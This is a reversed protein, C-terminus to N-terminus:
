AWTVSIPSRVKYKEDDSVWSLSGEAYVTVSPQPALVGDFTVTYSKKESVATFSLQNPNVSVKMGKPEVVQATYNATADGVNTVTRQFTVSFNQTNNFVVPFSPYNLNGALSSNCVVKRNTIMLIQSSNYNLSCLYAVYDDATIDYVLGPHAAREPNVHGSGTAFLDAFSGNSSDVIPQGTRDLVDASTMIASKIAAPSWDPHVSKLLGALGSVHPTAMSTGSEFNFDVKREDTSVGSPNLNSPWAALINVGPALIDPKLIEPSALSPGRSSFSAVAPANRTGFMTGKFSLTVTPNVTSNMYAKMTEGEKFGVRASPLVDAPVLTEQAHFPGQAVIMGLVGANLLLEEGQPGNTVAGQDCLLIKGEALAPDPINCLPDLPNYMFPATIQVTTNAPYISEAHFLTGNGLNVDVIVDRDITSAGVTTIWPAESSMTAPYPGWNGAACSVFIGKDMARFAGIAILDQDFPHSLGALSLSLIDVGDAIADDMAALIDSYACGAKWCVKYMALHAWPAMGQATGNAIGLFSADSVSNGAAISSTHTGHGDSDRASNGYETSSANTGKNYYRAGIIKNNCKSPSFETGNQCFGKWRSPPSPIGHDHFSPSEPWIGVDLVGIIIGEGMKSTQWLGGSKQPDLGLFYPSYTTQLQVIADPYAQLVGHANKIEEVEEESLKAAFGTISNEYSYLLSSEYRLFSSHWTKRHDSNLFGEEPEELHVIYVSEAIVTKMAPIGVLLLLLLLADESLKMAM